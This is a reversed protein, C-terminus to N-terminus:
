AQAFRQENVLREIGDPDSVDHFRVGLDKDGGNRKTLPNSNMAANAAANESAATHFVVTGCRFLRDIIGHDTSVSVINEFAIDRSKKYLIGWNTIVRETTVTFTTNHWRLLPVVFYVVELVVIIGHIFAPGWENWAPIDTDTPLYKMALVHLVILILQILLPMVLVKPHTRIVRLTEEQGRKADVMM